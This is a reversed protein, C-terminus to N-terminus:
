IRRLTILMRSSLFKKLFKPVFKEIFLILQIVFDPIPLPKSLGGTAFFSLISFYEIKVDIIKAFNEKFDKSCFYSESLKQNSDFANNSLDSGNKDYDLKWSVPEHHFIKYVPYSFFSVFPEVFVITADPKTVRMLESLVKTPNVLHHVVDIGFAFDFIGKEFPLKEANVYGIINPLNLPLLDTSTLTFDSLYKQSIGVGAGIELISEHSTEQLIRRLRNFVYELYLNLSPKTSNTLQKQLEQIFEDDKM